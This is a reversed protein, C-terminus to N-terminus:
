AHASAPNLTYKKGNNNLWVLFDSILYKDNWMQLTPPLWKIRVGNKVEFFQLLVDVKDLTLRM